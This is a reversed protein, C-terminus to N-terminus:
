STQQGAHSRLASLIEDRWAASEPLMKTFQSSGHVQGSGLTFTAKVGAANLRDAYRSGDFQLPDYESSIIHAPPLGSLDEALLPSVYPNTQDESTRLYATRCIEIEALPLPYEGTGYLEYGPGSLTLDLAPVELVQFAIHPGNKDRAKLTVAAALNAGASGGGVTILDPDADFERAHEAAWLLAAYSDELPVPFKHEPALRYEVAITVYGALATRERCLIDVFQEDITGAMWGGGHYFIHMPHPGAGEPQYIRVMIEGGDVPVQATTVAGVQPPTGAVMAALANSGELGAVRLTPLNTLDLPQAPPMSDLLAKLAPIVPM